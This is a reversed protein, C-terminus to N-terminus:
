SNFFNILIEKTYMVSHNLYIGFIDAGLLPMLFILLFLIGFGYKELQFYKEGIKSPLFNYLIRSGDLPPIPILNFFMLVLNIHVMNVLSFVYFNRWANDPVMNGFMIFYVAIIALILNLLPGAICVLAMSFKFKMKSFDVPMPKAWGFLIPSGAIYLFFPIILTGFPDTHAIPNLTLRGYKKATDDGLLKATFGHALEHLIVSILLPLILSLSNITSTSM